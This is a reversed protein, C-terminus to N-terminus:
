VNQLSSSITFPNLAPHGLTPNGLDLPAMGLSRFTRQLQAMQDEFIKEAEAVAREEKPVTDPILSAKLMTWSRRDKEILLTDPMGVTPLLTQSHIARVLSVFSEIYDPNELKLIFTDWSMPSHRGSVITDFVRAAYIIAKALKERLANAESATLTPDDISIFDELRRNLIVARELIEPEM